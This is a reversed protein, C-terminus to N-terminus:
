PSVPSSEMGFIFYQIIPIKFEFSVFNFEGKMGCIWNFYNFSRNLSNQANWIIKLWANNRLFFLFLKGNDLIYLKQPNLAEHSKPYFVNNQIVRKLTINGFGKETYEMEEEREWVCVSEWTWPSNQRLMFRTDFHANHWQPM